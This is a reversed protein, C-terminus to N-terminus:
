NLEFFRARGYAQPPPCVSCLLSVDPRVRESASRLMDAVIFGDEEIVEGLFWRQHDFLLARTADDILLLFKAPPNM